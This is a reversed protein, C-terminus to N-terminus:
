PAFERRIAQTNIVRAGADALRCSCLPAAVAREVSVVLLGALRAM